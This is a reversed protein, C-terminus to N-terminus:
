STPKVKSFYLSLIMNQQVSEKYDLDGPTPLFNRDQMSWGDM